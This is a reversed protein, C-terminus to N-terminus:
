HAKAKARELTARYCEAMGYQYNASFIDRIVTAPVRRLAACTYAQGALQASMAVAKEPGFDTIIENLLDGLQQLKALEEATPRHQEM